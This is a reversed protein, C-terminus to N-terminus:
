DPRAGQKLLGDLKGDPLMGTKKFKLVGPFPNAQFIHNSLYKCVKFMYKYHM